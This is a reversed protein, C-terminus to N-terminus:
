FTVIVLSNEMADDFVEHDLTAVWCSSTSSSVADITLCKDVLEMLPQVKRM